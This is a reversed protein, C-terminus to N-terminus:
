RVVPAPRLPEVLNGIRRQPLKRHEEGLRGRKQRILAVQLAAFSAVVGLAQKANARRSLYGPTGSSIEGGCTIYQTLLPSLPPPPTQHRSSLWSRLSGPLALQALLLSRSQAFSFCYKKMM